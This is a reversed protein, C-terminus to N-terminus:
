DRPSPSTYLLCNKTFAIDGGFIVIDDPTIVERYNALMAENMHDKSGFPRNSYQIINKHDFHLDSWAYVNDGLIDFEKPSNGNRFRPYQKNLVKWWNIDKVQRRRVVEGTERDTYVEPRYISEIYLDNLLQQLDQKNEQSIKQLKNENPKLKM